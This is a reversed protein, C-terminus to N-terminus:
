AVLRKDPGIGFYRDYFRTSPDSRYFKPVEISEEWDKVQTQRALTGYYENPFRAIHAKPYHNERTIPPLYPTQNGMMMSSPPPPPPSNFMERNSQNAGITRDSKKQTMDVVPLESGNYVGSPPRRRIHQFSHHNQPSPISPPHNQYHRHKGNEDYEGKMPSKDPMKSRNNSRNTISNSTIILSSSDQSSKNSFSQAHSDNWDNNLKTKRRQIQGGKRREGNDNEHRPSMKQQHENEMQGILSSPSTKENNSVGERRSQRTLQSPKIPSTVLAAQAANQPSDFSDHSKVQGEVLPRHRAIRDSYKIRHYTGYSPHHPHNGFESSKNESILALGLPGKPQKKKLKEDKREFQLQATPLIGNKFADTQSPRHGYIPKQPYFIIPSPTQTRQIIPPLPSPFELEDDSSALSSRESIYIDQDDDYHDINSMSKDMFNVKRHDKKLNYTM